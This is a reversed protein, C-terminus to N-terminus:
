GLRRYWWDATKNWKRLVDAFDGGTKVIVHRPGHRTQTPVHYAEYGCMEGDDFFMNLTHHRYLTPGAQFWVPTDKESPMDTM